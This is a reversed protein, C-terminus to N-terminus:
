QTKFSEPWAVLEFEFAFLLFVVILSGALFVFVGLKILWQSEPAQRSEGKLSAEPADYPNMENRM